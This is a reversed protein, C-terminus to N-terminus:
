MVLANKITVRILCRKIPASMLHEVTVTYDHPERRVVFTYSNHLKLQESIDEWLPSGTVNGNFVKIQPLEPTSEKDNSASAAFLQEIMVGFVHGGNLVGPGNKRSWYRLYGYTQGSGEPIDCSWGLIATGNPHLQSGPKPAVLKKPKEGKPSDVVAQELEFPRDSENVWEEVYDPSGPFVLETAGTYLTEITVAISARPGLLRTINVGYTELMGEARVFFNYDPDFHSTVDTWSNPNGTPSGVYTLIKYPQTEGKKFDQEIKVGFILGSGPLGPETPISWFQLHGATQGDGNPPPCTWALTYEEGPRLIFDPPPTKGANPPQIGAGFLKFAHKTKNKWIQDYNNNM